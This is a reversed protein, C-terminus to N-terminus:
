KKSAPYVWGAIMGGNKNSSENPGIDLLSYHGRINFLRIQRAYKEPAQWPLNNYNQEALSVIGNDLDVDVVVAVHGFQWKVDDKFPYYIVLDGTQPARTAFGNVSRALPFHSNKYIDKGETLYIIDYASDIDGFTIGRNKMWWRRAYEICQYTLGIYHLDKNGPDSQYISVTKDKLNLFSYDSQICTSQCNSYGKVNDAEGLVTGAPTVCDSQCSLLGSRYLEDLVKKPIAQSKQQLGYGDTNPLNDPLVVSDNKALVQLSTLIIAIFVVVRSIYILKM